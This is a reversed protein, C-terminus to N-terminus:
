LTTLQLIRPVVYWAPEPRRPRATAIREVRAPTRQAEFEGFWGPLRPTVAATRPDPHARRASGQDVARFHIQLRDCRGDGGRNRFYSRSRGRRAAPIGAIRTQGAGGVAERLSCLGRAGRADFLHLPALRSLRAHLAHCT